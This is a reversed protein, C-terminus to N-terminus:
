KCCHVQKPTRYNLSQHLRENNYFEFYEKLSARLGKVTEYKKLYIEEYKVTRWLREIFINDLARGRGDMSIQINGQELCELFALSTFQSAQDSDFIEPTAITLAKELAHICFDLEPINCIRM